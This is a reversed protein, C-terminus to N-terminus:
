QFSVKPRSIEGVADRAAGGGSGACEHASLSHAQGEEAALPRRTRSSLRGFTHALCLEAPARPSFWCSPCCRCAACGQRGLSTSRRCPVSRACRGPVQQESPLAHFPRAALWWRSWAHPSLRGSSEHFSLEKSSCPASRGSRPTATSQTDQALQGAPQPRRAAVHPKHEPPTFLGPRGMRAVLWRRAALPGSGHSCFDFFLFRRSTSKTM